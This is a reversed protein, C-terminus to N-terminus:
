SRASGRPEPVYKAAMSQNDVGAASAGFTVITFYGVWKTRFWPECREHICSSEHGETQQLKAVNLCFRWDNLLVSCLSKAVTVFIGCFRYNAAPPILGARM